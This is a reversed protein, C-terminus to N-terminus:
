DAADPANKFYTGYGMDDEAIHERIWNRVFGVLEQTANEGAYVRATLDSLQNEIDLHMLAHAEYDPYGHTLMYQEEYRFHSKVYEELACVADFTAAVGMGQNIWIILRNLLEVLTLHQADLESIGTRPVIGPAFPELQSQMM